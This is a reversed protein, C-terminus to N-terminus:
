KIWKLKEDQIKTNRPIQPLGSRIQSSKTICGITKALKTTTIITTPISLWRKITTRTIRWTVFERIVQLQFILEKFILKQCLKSNQLAIRDPCHCKILGYINKYCMTLTFCNWTWACGLTPELQVLVLTQMVIPYTNANKLAGIDNSFFHDFLSFNTLDCCESAFYAQVLLNM